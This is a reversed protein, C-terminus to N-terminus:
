RTLYGLLDHRTLVGIPNGDDVVLLADCEKLAKRATEVSDGTGILPLPASMHKDVRDALAAAGSFVADTLARESVSGAAVSIRAAAARVTATIAAARRGSPRGASRM